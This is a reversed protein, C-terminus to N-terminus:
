GRRLEIVPAEAPCGLRYPFWHGVGSSTYLQSNGKRYKGWLYPENVIGEFFSRGNVGIQGGHTHGALILNVGSEGAYDLAGPRHSMLIKFDGSSSDSVSKEISTRLFHGIDSRMIRPDDAGAIYLNTDEKKISVGSDCLLQVPSKDIIRRVEDIGRYYEHNGFTVFKPYKSPIQDVLRLADPLQTLDDAVDGTFLTLDIQEGSVTELLKELDNVTYYYGLHTDSLHLIRFGDLAQPLDPFSFTIKPIRVGSFARAFGSGASTLMFVPISSAATKLFLRRGAPDIVPKQKRSIRIFFKELQIFLLSFPLSLVLVLSVIMLAALILM